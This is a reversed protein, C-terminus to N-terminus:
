EIGKRLFLVLENNLKKIEALTLHLSNSHNKEHELEIRYKGKIICSKMVKINM